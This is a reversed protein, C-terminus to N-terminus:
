EEFQQITSRLKRQSEGKLILKYANNQIRDIIKEARYESGLSKHWSAVPKQTVYITAEKYARKDLIKSLISIEHDTLAETLFEDIILLDYNCIKKFTKRVTQNVEAEEMLLVLDDMNIYRVNFGGDCARRGIACAIYSKGCGAAGLIIVDHPATIYENTELIQIVGRNIKRSPSYDINNLSATSYELKAATLKNAATKNRVADIQADTLRRLIEDATMKMYKDSRSLTDYEDAMADLKLWRMNKSIENM